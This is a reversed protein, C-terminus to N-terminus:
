PQGQGADDGQGKDGQAIKAPFNIIGRGRNRLPDHGRVPRHQKGALVDLVALVDPLGDTALLHARDPAVASIHGRVPGRVPQMAFADRQEVLPSDGTIAFGVFLKVHFRLSGQTLTQFLFDADVGVIRLGAVEDNRRRARFRHGSNARMVRSHEAVIGREFRQAVIIRDWRVADLRRFALTQHVREEEPRRPGAAGVAGATRDGIRLVPRVFIQNAINRSSGDHQPGDDADDRQQGADARHDPIVRPLPVDSLSSSATGARSGSSPM